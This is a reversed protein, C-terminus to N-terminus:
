DGLYFLIDEFRRKFISIKANSKRSTKSIFILSRIHLNLRTGSSNAYRISLKLTEKFLSGTNGQITDTECLEVIEDEEIEVSKVRLFGRNM